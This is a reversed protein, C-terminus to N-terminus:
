FAIENAHHEAYKNDHYSNFVDLSYSFHFDPPLKGDSYVPILHAARYIVDLHEVSQLQQGHRDVHPRVKWLGTVADPSNGIWIFRDILACPYVKNDYVFSFFLCVRGIIMGRMGHRDQDVVVFVCDQRGGQGRWSPTSHIWKRHMSHRGSMDSPAYFTAAASHFVSIPGDFETLRRNHPLESESPGPPMDLQIELFDKILRPLQPEQIQLTLQMGQTAYGRQPRTPLHMYSEARETDIAEDDTEQTGSGLNTDHDAEQMSRTAGLDQPLMGHEIFIVRAVALKDLHQITLLMQGLANYRNSRRWPRKVATIHWSETISSCLGNPAGFEKTCFVERHLHFRRLADDADQLDVVGLESRRVIYCFDLFARLCSVLQQPVYETIAPLYIFIKMLSQGQPFRRLGVFHPVAALCRDIDDLIEKARAPDYEAEIWQCTWAVLHDKFTGKIMQHLLDLSIIAHIDARPFDNTFLVVDADVGYECWLSESTFMASLLDHLGQTRRGGPGDLDNPSATCKPCWGQIIGALMVQEPYDMIFAALDFIVRRLHGDPCRRVVPTTMAAKIPRLIAAISAHYLKKKFTHFEADNDEKRTAKPIALFGIPIVANHHARRVANHPNGISLYLPHYEVNGTAVSVTTKDSGLIISCYMAGKTSPDDAYIKDSQHWAYHGSMFNTWRRQGKSDTSIFPRTDFQDKFDPNDLMDVVVRDVNRYWVEYEMTKWAPLNERGDAQVVSPSVKMCEWPVGGSHIGDITAYLDSASQFPSKEFLFDALLFQSQSSFPSWDDHARPTRSHPPHDPPLPAGFEDCPLATLHPHFQKEAPESHQELLGPSQGVNNPDQTHQGRHVTRIHM